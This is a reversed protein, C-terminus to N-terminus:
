SFLLYLLAAAIFFLGSHKFAFSAGGCAGALALLFRNECQLHYLLAALGFTAFFLNYWSPLAAPYNPVSWAVALLTAGGAVLPTAFRSAVYFFVPVWALFIVYLM